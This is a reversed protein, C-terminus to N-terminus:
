KKKLYKVDATGSLVTVGRDNKVDFSLSLVNLPHNVGEVVATVLLVDDYFVPSRFEISQKLWLAGEGPIEMGIMRSIYSNILVGHVVPRKFETLSCYAEDLHLPNKDGSLEAFAFVDRKTVQVSFSRRVGKKLGADMGGGGLVM